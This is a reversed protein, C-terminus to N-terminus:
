NLRYGMSNRRRAQLGSGTLRECVVGGARHDDHEVTGADVLGQHLGLCGQCVRLHEQGPEVGQQCRLPQHHRSGEVGANRDGRLRVGLQEGPDALGEAGEWRSLESGPAAVGGGEKLGGPIRAPEGAILERHQDVRHEDLLGAGAAVRAHRHTLTRVVTQQRRPLGQELIGVQQAPHACVQLSFSVWRRRAFRWRMSRM